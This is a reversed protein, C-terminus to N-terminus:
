NKERSWVTKAKVRMRAAVENCSKWDNRVGMERGKKTTSELSKKTDKQRQEVKVGNKKATM